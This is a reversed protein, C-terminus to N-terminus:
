STPRATASRGSRTRPRTRVLDIPVFQEEPLLVPPDFVVRGQISEGVLVVGVPECAVGCTSLYSFYIHRACALLQRSNVRDLRLSSAGLGTGASSQPVSASGGAARILFSPDTRASRPSSTAPSPPLAIPGRHRKIV